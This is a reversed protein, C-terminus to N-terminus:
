CARLSSRPRSGTARARAAAVPTSRSGAAADPSRSHTERPSHFWTGASKASSPIGLSLLTPLAARNTAYLSAYKSTLSLSLFFSSSSPCARM